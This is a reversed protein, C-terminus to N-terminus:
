GEVGSQGIQLRARGRASLRGISPPFTVFFNKSLTAGNSIAVPSFSGAGRARGDQRRSVKDDFQVICPILAMLSRHNHSVASGNSQFDSIDPLSSLSLPPVFVTSHTFELESESHIRPNKLDGVPIRASFAACQRLLNLVSGQHLLSSLNGNAAFSPHWWTRERKCRLRM